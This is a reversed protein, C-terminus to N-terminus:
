PPQETIAASGVRPGIHPPQRKPLVMPSITTAVAEEYDGQQKNLWGALQDLQQRNTLYEKWTDQVRKRHPPELDFWDPIAGDFPRPTPFEYGFLEKALHQIERFDRDVWGGWSKPIAMKWQTKTVLDDYTSGQARYKVILDDIKKRHQDMWYLATMVRLREWDAVLAANIQTCTAHLERQLQQIAAQHQERTVYHANLYRRLEAFLMHGIWVILATAVVINLLIKHEIIWDRVYPLYHQIVDWRAPADILFLLAAYLLGWKLHPKIKDRLISGLNM